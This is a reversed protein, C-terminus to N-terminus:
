PVKPWITSKPPAPTVTNGGSFSAANLLLNGSGKYKGTISEPPSVSSLVISAVGYRTLKPPAAGNLVAM